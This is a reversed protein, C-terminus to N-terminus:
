GARKITYGGKEGRFVREDGLVRVLFLEPVEGIKKVGFETVPLRGLVQLNGNIFFHPNVPEEFFVYGFFVPAYVDDPVSGRMLLVRRDEPVKNFDVESRHLLLYTPRGYELRLMEGPAADLGSQLVLDAGPNYYRLIDLYNEEFAKNLLIVPREETSYVNPLRKFEEYGYKDACLLLLSYFVCSIFLVALISFVFRGDRISSVAKACVLAAFPALPVIYYSHKNYVLFFITCVLSFVVPLRDHVGRRFLLYGLSVLFTGSLVPSLGWLFENFILNIGHGGGEESMPLSLRSAYSGVFGAPRLLIGSAVYPVVVLLFAAIFLRLGRDRLKRNWLEWLVIGAFFLLGPQKTVFSLGVSVGACFRLWGDSLYLYVGLLGFFMFVAEYQVNRGVLVVMPTVSFLGAAIVGELPSYLRRGILFVLIISLLTFFVPVIRASAEGVGFLKFSAYLLLPLVPQDAQPTGDFRTPFHLPSDLLSVGLRTFYAESVGHFGGFAGGLHPLVLFAWVLIIPVLLWDHRFRKLSKGRAMGYLLSLPYKFFYFM